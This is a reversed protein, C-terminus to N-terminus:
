KRFDIDVLAWHITKNTAMLTIKGDPFLQELRNDTFRQYHYRPLPEPEAYPITIILRERAMALLNEVATKFGPNAIHEICELCTVVEASLDESQKKTLDCTVYEFHLGEQLNSHKRYDAGKVSTITKTLAAAKVFQGAGIGIDLLDSHERILDLTYSWRKYDQIRIFSAPIQKKKVLTKYDEFVVGVEDCLKVSELSVVPYSAEMISEM